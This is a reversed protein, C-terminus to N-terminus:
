AAVTAAAAAIFSHVRQVKVLVRRLITVVIRLRGLRSTLLTLVVAAAVAATHTHKIYDGTQSLPVFFASRHRRLENQEHMHIRARTVSSPAVATRRTM